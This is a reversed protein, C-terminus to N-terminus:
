ENLKEGLGEVRGMGTAIVGVRGVMVTERPSCREELMVSRTVRDSVHALKFLPRYEKWLCNAVSWGLQTWEKM